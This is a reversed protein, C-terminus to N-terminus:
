PGASPSPGAAISQVWSRVARGGTPYGQATAHANIPTGGHVLGSVHVQCYLGDVLAQKTHRVALTGFNGTM